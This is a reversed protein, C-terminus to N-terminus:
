MRVLVLIIILISIRFTAHPQSVGEADLTEYSASLGQDAQVVSGGIV